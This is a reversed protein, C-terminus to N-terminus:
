CFFKVNKFTCAPKKLISVKVFYWMVYCGNLCFAVMAFLIRLVKRMNKNCNLSISVALIGMFIFIFTIAMPIATAMYTAMFAPRKSGVNKVSTDAASNVASTTVNTGGILKGLQDDSM